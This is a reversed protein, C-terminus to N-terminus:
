YQSWRYCQTNKKEVPEQNTIKGQSGDIRSEHSTGEYKRCRSCPIKPDNSFASYAWIHKPRYDTVVEIGGEDQNADLNDDDDSESMADDSQDKKMGISVKFM